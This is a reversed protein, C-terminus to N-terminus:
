TNVTSGGTHRSWCIEMQKMVASHLAQRYQSGAAVANEPPTVAAFLFVADQAAAALQTEHEPQLLLQQLSADNAKLYVHSLVAALLSGSQECDSSAAALQGAVTATVAAEWESTPTVVVM